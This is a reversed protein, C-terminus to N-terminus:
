WRRGCRRTAIRLGRGSFHQSPAATVAPRQEAAHAEWWDLETIREPPRGLGRPPRRRRALHRVARRAERWSASPRITSTTTTTTRSSSRTSSRCRALAVPVPQFRKPGPSAPRRHARDGSRIPSCACATSRSCCPPTASGRPACGPRPSGPGADLPNVSPLPARPVRRKGGCLFESLTPRARECRVRGTRDSPRQSVGRGGM